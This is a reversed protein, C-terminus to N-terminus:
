CAPPRVKAEVDGLGNKCAGQGHKWAPTALGPSLLVDIGDVTMASTLAAQIGKRTEHWDYVGLSDRHRGELIVDALRPRGAIRFLAAIWQRICLADPIASIAVFRRYLGGPLEGRLGRVRMERMADRGLFIGYALAASTLDVGHAAPDWPIVDHGASTLAAAAEEVARKCAPAPEFFSDTTYYGVRLRRGGDAATGVSTAIHAVEPGPPPQLELPTDAKLRRPRHPSAQRGNYVDLRFPLPPVMLDVEWVGVAPAAPALSSASATSSFAASLSFAEDGYVHRRMSADPLWCRLVAVLDDVTRALPGPAAQVVNEAEARFGVAQVGITTLRQPTPRFGCCGCCLAPIRVSGAIDTGIGVRTCRSAVLAAEGGSSGGCIRDHRWPNVCRGWVANDTESSMVFQPLNSRVLPVAGQEVLMRVLAGNHPAPPEGARWAVGCTSVSGGMVLEEKVSLPVGELLGGRSTFVVDRDDDEPEGHTQRKNDIARALQLSASINDEALAGLPYGVDACRQASATIVNTCSAAGTDIVGFTCSHAESGEKKVPRLEALASCLRQDRGRQLRATSRLLYQPSLAM